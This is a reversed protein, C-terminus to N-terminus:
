VRLFCIIPGWSILLYLLYILFSVFHSYFLWIISPYQGYIYVDELLLYIKYLIWISEDPLHLFINILIIIIQMPMTTQQKYVLISQYMIDRKTNLVILSPSPLYPYEWKSVSFKKFTTSFQLWLGSIWTHQDFGDAVFRLSM